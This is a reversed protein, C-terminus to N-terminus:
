AFPLISRPPCVPPGAGHQRLFLHAVIEAQQEVGYREFPRGDQVTYAYQCFPHRMLPLFLRGRTQAQWVHTMEHIFLAQLDLRARAFDDSWLHSKPHFHLNGTPAMVTDKPQFPWWKKRVLRVKSYDIADRFMSRALAIEGPTLCRSGSM